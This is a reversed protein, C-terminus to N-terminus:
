ERNTKEILNQYLRLLFARNDLSTYDVSCGMRNFTKMFRLYYAPNDPGPEGQSWDWTEEQLDVVHIHCDRIDKGQPLLVNRAMSLSKEFIMPSMVASGVSLYVGGELRSVGYAYALFDRQATRGVAAGCNAKHTYIIDHGFMPHSTFPVGLRYAQAQISFRAYPHPVERFGADIGLCEMAELLDSAAARKWLPPKEGASFPTTVVTELSEREPFSLGGNNILSGVAEGYGLGEWAGVLLALNINSGTEEWTGFRGLQVNARVDESSLGHHSFEWDHIVGAGNTALHTIWGREIFRSLLLGLGNKITHAGFACMVSADAERARLIQDAIEEIRERAADSIPPPPTDPNVYDRSIDVKSTREDLPFYRMKERDFLKM